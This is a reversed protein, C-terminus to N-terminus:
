RCCPCLPLMGGYGGPTVFSTPHMAYRNAVSELQHDLDARPLWKGRLMVGSVKRLAAIDELPNADVLLLDASAGPLVVGSKGSESRFQAPAATASHLAEGPTLGADVFLQLEDKLSDGPIVYPNPTDTGAMLPAGARQLAAVIKLELPRLAQLAQLDVDTTGARRFDSAPNWFNLLASPIWRCEPRALAANSQASTYLLNRLVVLTPCTWLQKRAISDALEDLKEPDFVADITLEGNAIRRALALNEPSRALAGIPYEPRALAQKFGLLHEFSAAGSAIADELPVRYPIHGAFPFARRQCSSALAQFVNPELNSYVKIFDYGLAQQESVAVEAEQNDTVVTSGPWVPPSGDVLPGATQIAPGLCEGTHVKERLALIDTSGWMNRVHTVGHATMVALQEPDTIHVHMDSLGPVLWRGAGDIDMDVVPHPSRADVIHSVHGREILVTSNAFVGPTGVPVVHVNRIAIKRDDLTIAHKM